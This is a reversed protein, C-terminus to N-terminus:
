LVLGPLADKADDVGDEPNANEHAHKDEELGHVGSVTIHASGGSGLTLVGLLLGHISSLIGHVAFHLVNGAWDTAAYTESLTRTPLAAPRIHAENEAIEWTM